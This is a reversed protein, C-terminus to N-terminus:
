SKAKMRAIAEEGLPRPEKIRLSEAWDSQFDRDFKAHIFATILLALLAGVSALLMDKHADWIDGQTGLYAQGLEGGFYEAAAWEVLEYLMSSSMIVNLPLFYGWFGRTNAVRVFLERFPYALLFGYAFHVLRDYHNRELGLRSSLTAGTLSEFWQDYPVEAYTYHSGLEHMLLFAFILVYSVKSLPMRRYTTVLVILGVVTLVNELLWDERHLPAIGLLVAYVLFIALLTLPLRM